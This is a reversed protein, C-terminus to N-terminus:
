RLILTTLLEGYAGFCISLIVTAVLISVALGLASLFGPIRVQTIIRDKKKSKQMNRRIKM